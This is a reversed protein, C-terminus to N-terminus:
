VSVASTYTHASAGSQVSPSVSAGSSGTSKVSTRGGHPTAESTARSSPNIVGTDTDQVAGM